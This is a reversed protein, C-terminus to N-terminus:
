QTVWGGAVCDDLTITSLDITTVANETGEAPPSDNSSTDAALSDTNDAGTENDTTVSSSIDSSGGEVNLEDCTAQVAAQDAEAVPNGAITWSAADQAFAPAVIMASTLALASVISKVRM